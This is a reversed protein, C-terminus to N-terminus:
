AMLRRTTWELGCRACRFSAILTRPPRNITLTWGHADRDRPVPFNERPGEAATIEGSNIWCRSCCYPSRETNAGNASQIELVDQPGLRLPRDLGMWPIDTVVNAQADFTASGVSVLAMVRLQEGVGVQAMGWRIGQPNNLAAPISVGPAFILRFGLGNTM